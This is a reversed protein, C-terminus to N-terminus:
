VGFFVRAHRFWNRSRCTLSEDTERAALGNHGVRAGGLGVGICRQSHGLYTIANMKSRFTVQFLLWNEQFDEEIEMYVVANSM